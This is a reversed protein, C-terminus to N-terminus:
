KFLYEFNRMFVNHEFSNSMFINQEYKWKDIEIFQHYTTQREKETMAKYKAILEVERKALSESTHGGPNFTHGTMRNKNQLRNIRIERAISM